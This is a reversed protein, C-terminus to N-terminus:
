TYPMIFNNITVLTLICQYKCIELQLKLFKKNTMHKFASYTNKHKITVMHM